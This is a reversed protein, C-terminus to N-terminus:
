SHLMSGPTPRTARALFLLVIPLVADIALVTLNEVADATTFGDLHTLHFLLHTVAFVIYGTLAGCVLRYELHIAAYAVVATIALTLGGVDSMLHQNYPPDLSVTPFDTFFSHSFFYQWVGIVTEIVVLLVMGARLWTRANM